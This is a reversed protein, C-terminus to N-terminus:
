SSSETEESKGTLAHTQTRGKLSRKSSLESQSEFNFKLKKNEVSVKVKGGQALKGFLIEDVMPNKIHTDVFRSFPRAGYAPDYGQEFLWDFVEPHVEMHINRKLLQAELEMVFKQVVRLLLDKGLSNFEVIADLRNLFEPKFSRKIADISLKSSTDQVIGLGGKSAEFAGANSTMILIVNRFDVKRGNSDTLHGADMVQLLINMIDPHAKEVEDLLLVAHPKKFVEETLLGGEEFGVYGPPAGVLRAVAHKEMYESMDFRLFHVNLFHALQKALETKGVGTPGAFLFSGIPRTESGLGSRSIKIASVVKEIASNQGFLVSKINKDLDKLPQNSKTTGSSVPVQAMNSVTEEVQEPLIKIKKVTEDKSFTRVRAATEDMVDIAKDPFFRDSLYRGSLEVTALLAESTFEVEHHNEFSKKIGNLIQLTEEQTPEPIEVKQFRRALARDKEFHSRYEKFTTSGVCRLSGDSLAPKLLNSADMSGGTTGGAGVITHIEDIFLIINKRERVEEIVKKLRDEFDGRYKTGALLAGMDLSYVVKDLLAKPAEEAVIKQALGLALATKGVGPEGILLPNSKTKRSLIQCIREVIGERGILPDHHLAIDNLNTAFTELPTKQAEAGPTGDGKNVAMEPLRGKGHSVYEIVDFQTIGSKELFFKAYSESEAFLAIILNSSQVVRKGSSQVQIAARQLLRHFAMTLEPRWDPDDEIVEESITPFHNSLFEELDHELITIDAGCNRLIEQTSQDKQILGMLIHELSVYEHRAKMAEEITETLIRELRPDLM